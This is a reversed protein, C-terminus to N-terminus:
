SDYQAVKRFIVLRPRQPLPGSLQGVFVSSDRDIGISGYDSTLYGKDALRQWRNNVLREVVLKGQQAQDGYALYLGGGPSIALSPSFATYPSNDGEDVATWKQDLYQKVIPHGSGKTYVVHPVDAASVLLSNNALTGSYDIQGLSLWGSDTWQDAMLAYGNGADRYVLYLTGKSSIALSPEITERGAFRGNHLTQWNGNAFRQVVVQSKDTYTERSEYAVYPTGDPGITLSVQSTSYSSFGAKGVIQWNGNVFRQVTLKLQNAVDTYAVYPIGTPSLALHPTNARGTSFGPPGVFQWSERAFRQLTLRGQQAGDQYALYVMGDPTVRCTASWSNQQLDGSSLGTSVVVTDRYSLPAADPSKCSQTIVLNFLLGLPFLWSAQQFLRGLNLDM